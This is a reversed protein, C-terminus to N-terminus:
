CAPLWTVRTSTCWSTRLENKARTKSVKHFGTIESLTSDLDEYIQQYGSTQSPPAFPHVNAVQSVLM